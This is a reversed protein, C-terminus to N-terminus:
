SKLGSMKHYIKRIIYSPRNKVEQHIQGIYIGVLSFMIMLCGGTILILFVISSWGPALLDMRGTVFFSLVYIAEIIALLIFICGMLLGIRMPVLSFSFIADEALAIMKTPTYKSKGAIRNDASFPLIYTSFGMWPVMGRIFRHYEKMDRLALVAKRSMLRFDAGGPIIKTNGLSNIIKYFWKSTSKKIISENGDEIRQTQVIEYGERYYNLLIPLLEPPHQGDGDMTVVVDGDAIELGATLAAQHGFNRTLEISFIREDTEVIKRILSDTGDTSGDDVYYIKCTYPLKNIVSVIRQHFIELSRSENYLPIVINIEISEQSYVSETNQM